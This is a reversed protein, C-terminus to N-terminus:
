RARKAGAAILTIGCMLLAAPGPEPTASTNVTGSGSVTFNTAGLYGQGSVSGRAGAFDGTGGTFTLTQPFPGTQTPSADIASDDEFVDGFLEDGSALSLTFTGNLLGTTLDLVSRDSYSVPNWAANLGSNGSLVSGNAQAILTLTTPTSSVVNGVGTLSYTLAISDAKAPICVTGALFVGVIWLSHVGTGTPLSQPFCRNTFLPRMGRLGLLIVGIAILAIPLPEPTAVAGFILGTSGPDYTEVMTTKGTALDITELDGSANAFAYYTGGVDVLTDIGFTTPSSPDLNVTAGTAPDIRYLHDPHAPTPQFTNPDLTGTFSTAYLSGNAGLMAQGFFNLQGRPNTSFPVLPYVAPVGTSAVLNKAGTVPNLTYLNNLYDTAYVVGNLETITNASNPGCQGAVPATCSGLGTPVSATVQGSSPNITDLNGSSTLTLLSGNPGAVLGSTAEPLRPGISAFSGTSLNFVGFQSNSTVVYVGDALASTCTAAVAILLLYKNRLLM